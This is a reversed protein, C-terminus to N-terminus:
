ATKCLRIDTYVKLILRECESLQGKASTKPLGRIHNSLQHLQYVLSRPHTEDFLLLELVMPLQIFARYRRQYLTLSDTAQLVAELVQNQLADAHKLVLTARLLAIVTQARELRRGSYLMLWAAERPMNECTLGTFAVIGSM